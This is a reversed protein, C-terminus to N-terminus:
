VGIDLDPTKIIDRIAEDRRKLEEKAGKGGKRANMELEDRSMQRLIDETSMHHYIRRRENLSKM